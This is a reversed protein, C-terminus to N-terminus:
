LNECHTRGAAAGMSTQAARDRRVAEKPAGRHDALKSRKVEIRTAREEFDRLTNQNGNGVTMDLRAQVSQIETEMQDPTWKGDNVEDHVESEEPTLNGGAERCLDQLRKGEDLLQQKVQELEIVERQRQQLLAQEEAHQAQLQDHDSKAEIQLIEAEFLQVHLGKLAELSNAYDLVLQGKSVTLGDGREVIERIRGRSGRQKEEAEDLKEQARRVKAPLANFETHQRQKDHKSARLRM